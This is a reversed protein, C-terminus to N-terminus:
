HSSFLQYNHTTHYIKLDSSLPQCRITKDKKKMLLFSTIHPVAPVTSGRESGSYFSQLPGNDKVKM